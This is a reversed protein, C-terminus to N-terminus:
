IFKEVENQKKMIPDRNSFIDKQPKQSGMVNGLSHTNSQIMPSPKVYKKTEYAITKIICTYILHITAIWFIM